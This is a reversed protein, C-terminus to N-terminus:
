SIEIPRGNEDTQSSAFTIASEKDAFRREVLEYHDDGNCIYIRVSWGDIDSDDLGEVYTSFAYDHEDHTFPDLYLAVVDNM